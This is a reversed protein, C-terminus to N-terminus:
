PVVVEVQRHGKKRLRMKLQLAEGFYLFVLDDVPLITM